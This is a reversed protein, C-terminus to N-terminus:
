PLFLSPFSVGRSGQVTWISLQTKQECLSMQSRFTRWGSDNCGCCGRKLVRGLPASSLLRSGKQSIAAVKGWVGLTGAQGLIDRLQGDLRFDGENPLNRPHLCHAALARSHFAWSGSSAAAAPSPPHSEPRLGAGELNGPCGRQRAPGSGVGCCRRPSKHM